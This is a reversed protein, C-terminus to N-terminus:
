PSAVRHISPKRRIQVLGILSLCRLVLFSPDFHYARDGARASGPLRHHTSHWGDGYMLLSLTWSDRVKNPNVNFPQRWRAHHVYSNIAWVTHWLVVIRLPFAWVLAVPDRVLAAILLFFVFNIAFMNRDMFVLYPDMSLDKVSVSAKRFGNPHYFSLWMLHSWLFGRAASHPDGEEDNFRHHARHHAAWRIPGEQLSLTGCLAFFRMLWQNCGYAHHAILRHYGLVIGFCGTLFHFLLFLALGTWSFCFLAPLALIHMVAIVILPRWTRKGDLSFKSKRGPRM